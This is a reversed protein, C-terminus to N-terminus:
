VGMATWPLTRGWLGTMRPFHFAPVVRGLPGSKVRAQSRRSAQPSMSHSLWPRSSDGVAPFIGKSEVGEWLLGLPMHLPDSLPTNNMSSWLVWPQSIKLFINIEAMRGRSEGGM